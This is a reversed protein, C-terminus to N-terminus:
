AVPPEEIPKPHHERYKAKAKRFARVAAVTVFYFPVGFALGIILAGLWLEAGLDVATNMAHGWCESTVLTEAGEAWTKGEFLADLAAASPAKEGVASRGLALGGVKWVFWYLPVATFPNTIFLIPIGSLKN